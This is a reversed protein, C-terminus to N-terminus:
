EGTPRGEWHPDRLKKRLIKGTPGRPIDSSFEFSKPLFARSVHQAGFTALDEGTVDAGNELQIVAHVAEGWREDPIGFVVIEVVSPHQRIADEVQRPYINIGGSIIKDDRRDVLFLFGEEDLRALDGATVWGDRFARKTERPRQWYGSFMFPSRSHLEGIEGPAVDNGAENLLRIETNPFPVGVSAPRRLQEAPPLNAVIGAETSGYAEFLISEGFYEVIRRKLKESLPAANSVITKLQTPKLGKRVREELQFIADFHTPIMFTNTIGEDRLTRLTLEPDFRRMISCYGGQCVAAASHAFGGGHYLPAIGLTRDDHSYSGYETHMAPFMLARSGHSLLVGKAKGTTGSTYPICFIDSLGVGLRPPVGHADGLLSEYEDGLVVIREVSPLEVSRVLPQTSEDAFVVRAGSDNCIHEIEAGASRPSIMAPAIGAAALGFVIEMFELCNPLMLAVRDGRELGLGNVALTSVRDIRREFDRYTLRRDGESLAVKEPTARAGLRIGSSIDTPAASVPFAVGRDAGPICIM